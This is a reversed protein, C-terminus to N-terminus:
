YWNRSDRVSNEFLSDRDDRDTEQSLHTFSVNM